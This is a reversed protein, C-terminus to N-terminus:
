PYSRVLSAHTSKFSHSFCGAMQMTPLYQTLVLPDWWHLWHWWTKTSSTMTRRSLMPLRALQRQAAASGADGRTSLACRSVLPLVLETHVDVLAGICIGAGDASVADVLRSGLCAHTNGVM